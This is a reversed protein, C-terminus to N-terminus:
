GGSQLRQPEDTDTAADSDATDGSSTQEIMMERPQKDVTNLAPLEKNATAHLTEFRRAQPMVNREFSGVASNYSGIARDMHTGIKELHGTFSMLRNHMEKGAEAIDKANEALENQQWSMRVVRLISLILIPSALVINKEAAYDVLSPDAGVAMSFLHEAPLFLVVFDPSNYHDQYSKSSLDRIHKKVQAALKRATEERKEDEDMNALVDQIPAKSDIVIRLGDQLHIVVDPRVSSAEGTAVGSQTEFHIDKVLGSKELLRELVYEGWKGSKAPNHMAGAIKSTESQLAKLEEKLASDTGKVQELSASLTELQKKIPSVMEEIATKRKDMDGSHAQEFQKFRESAMNLLQKSSSELSNNMIEQSLAKFQHTMAERAEELAKKQSQLASHESLLTEYAAQKDRLQTLSKDLEGALYDSRSAKGAYRLVFPLVVMIALGLGALAGVAFWMMEM